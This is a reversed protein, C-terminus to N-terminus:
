LLLYNHRINGKLEDTTACHDQLRGETYIRQDLNSM